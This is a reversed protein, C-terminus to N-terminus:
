AFPNWVPLKQFEVSKKLQDAGKGCMHITNNYYINYM